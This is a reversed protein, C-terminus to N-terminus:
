IEDENKVFGGDILGQVFELHNGYGVEIKQIAQKEADEIEKFLDEEFVIKSDKPLGKYNITIEWRHRLAVNVDADFKVGLFEAVIEYNCFKHQYKKTLITKM